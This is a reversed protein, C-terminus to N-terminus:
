GGEKVTGSWVYGKRLKFHRLCFSQLEGKAEELSVARGGVNPKQALWWKFERRDRSTEARILGLCHSGTRLDAIGKKTQVAITREYELATTCPQGKYPVWRLELVRDAKSRKRSPRRDRARKEGMFRTSISHTGTTEHSGKTAGALESRDFHDKAEGSVSPDAHISRFFARRLLHKGFPERYLTAVGVKMTHALARM